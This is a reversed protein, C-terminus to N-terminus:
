GEELPYLFVPIQEVAPAIAYMPYFFCLGDPRLYYNHPNFRRKLMSKGVQPHFQAVGQDQLAQIQALAVIALANKYGTKRPMFATIPLLFRSSVDWTDGRRHYTTAPPLNDKTQTYLSLLTGEQYTVTHSLTATFPRFLAASEQTEQWAQRALPLLEQTAFHIYARRQAQYYRDFRRAMPHPAISQPVQTTVTLLPTDQHCLVQTQTVSHFTFPTM